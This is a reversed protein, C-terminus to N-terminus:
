CCLIAQFDCYCLTQTRLVSQELLDQQLARAM